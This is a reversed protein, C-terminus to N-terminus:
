KVPEKATGEPPHSSGCFFEQPAPLFFAVGGHALLPGPPMMSWLCEQAKEEPQCRSVTLTHHPLRRNRM